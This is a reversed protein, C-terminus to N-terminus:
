FICSNLCFRLCCTIAVSKTAGKRSRRKGVSAKILMVIKAAGDWLTIFSFGLFLGLTGGLDAVLSPLPFMLTETVVLTDNTVTQFALLYAGEEERSTM